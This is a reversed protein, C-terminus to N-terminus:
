RLEPYLRGRNFVAHPDFVKKLRQHLTLLTPTLPTFVGTSKDGGRFLTAQGGLASVRERVERAPAQSRCWRQNGNWELLAHNDLQSGQIDPLRGASAPLAIRWLPVEPDEFFPLQQERLKRWYRHATEAPLAEGGLERAAAAVATSVGSLRVRLKDEQWATASVPLPLSAWHRLLSLAEEEGCALECTQEQEPMPLVKLSVQTIVGLIGLSGALARSVDYGAVNKMVQGGFSLQRGQGDLLEAGLVFDRLGGSRMRRPGSLGAAICGGITAPGFHPPEFPLMQRQAALTQELEALPTGARATVVLESPQYDVIGGYDRTDLVSGVPTQGYFLKSGGGLIQLTEGSSIAEAIQQRWHEIM